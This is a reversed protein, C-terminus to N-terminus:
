WWCRVTFHLLEAHMCVKRVCEENGLTLASLGKFVQCLPTCM